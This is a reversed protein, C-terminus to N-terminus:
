ARSADVFAKFLNFDGQRTPWLFEPHWQVAVGFRMGDVEIGEILGDEAVAAANIGPAPDAIGQHHMSNVRIEREGYINFLQSDEQITVKHVPQTFISKQSHQIPRKDSRQTCLDQYLTGGLAVNIYQLGRCIGLVPKDAQMVADFLVTDMHDRQSCIENCCDFTPAGYLAPDVDQGGPFLFGDFANVLSRIDADNDLLPIILPMGGAALVGEVYGPFMWYSNWKSDRKIDYLSLIGIRPKTAM